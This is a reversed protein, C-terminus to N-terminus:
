VEPSPRNKGINILLGIVQVRRLHLLLDRRMRFRHHGDGIGPLRHVMVPKKCQLFFIPEDVDLIRRMGDSGPVVSPRRAADRVHGTQGKMRDLGDAASLAARHERVIFRIVPLEQVEARVPDGAVARQHLM